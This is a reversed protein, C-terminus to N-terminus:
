ERGLYRPCRAGYRLGDDVTIGVERITMGEIGVHVAAAHRLADEADQEALEGGAVLRGLTVAAALLTTHRSGPQAAAVMASEATVIARLYAGAHRPLCRGATAAAAPRSPPATLLTVLWM